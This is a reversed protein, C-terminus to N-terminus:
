VERDLLSPGKLTTKVQLPLSNLKLTANQELSPMTARLLFLSNASKSTKDFLRFKQFSQLQVWGTLTEYEDRVTAEVLCNPENFNSDACDVPLM